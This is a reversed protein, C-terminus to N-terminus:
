RPHMQTRKGRTRISSALGGLLIVLSLILVLQLLM